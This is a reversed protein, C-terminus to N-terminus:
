ESTIPLPYDASSSRHVFHYIRALMSTGSFAGSLLDLSESLALNPRAPWVSVIGSMSRANKGGTQPTIVSSSSHNTEKVSM